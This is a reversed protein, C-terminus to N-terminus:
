PRVPRVLRSLADFLDALAEATPAPGAGGGVGAGPVVSAGDAGGAGVAEASGGATDGADRADTIGLLPHEEFRVACDLGPTQRRTPGFATLVADQFARNTGGRALLPVAIRSFDGRGGSEWAPEDARSAAFAVWKMAERGGDLAMRAIGRGRAGARALRYRAMVDPGLVVRRARTDPPLAERGVAMRSNSFSYCNDMFLTLQVGDPLRDLIARIDDDIILRGDEFDVPCIAQDKGSVEDGSIDEVTCGHGSYQVALVDGPRADSVLRELSRLIAVQTAAEDHLTAVGFGLTELAAQWDRADAVCGSLANPAPYRDIGICLARRSGAGTERGHGAQGEGRPAWTVVAGGPEIDRPRDPFQRPLDALNKLGLIGCAVSGMTQPDDDFGGHSISRSLSSGSSGTSPSWIAEGTKSATGNLGLRDRLAANQLISTQLGLIPTDREPELAKSILYLLSKRYVQVVTDKREAADTMTFIRLRKVLKPIKPEVLRVHDAVTIAPALLSLSELQVDKLTALRDVLRAHFISGASHGVAHLAVRDKHAAAFDGLRAIFRTGAADTEFAERAAEKMGRWIRAGGLNRVAMEVLGDSFDDIGRALDRALGRDAGLLRTIEEFLGTEWIFHIPFCGNAIWWPVQGAAIRLGAEENVLGGHAYLVIPLKKTGALANLADPLFRDFIRDVDEPETRYRGGSSLKGGWLDIVHPRLLTLTPADFAPTAAARADADLEGCPCAAESLEAESLEALPAALWRELPADLPGARRQATRGGRAGRVDNIVRAYEVSSGPCTKPSGLQNHFRLSDLGLGFAEQVIAIVEIATKYQAGDLTERGLDFNGVMEFMFPGSSRSGNHGVASAPPMDWPRGTWISGDPAITIHQAIDSFHRVNVHDRWMSTITDEGRWDSRRPRWTHHMHVADARRHGNQRWTAVMGAFDSLDVKHFPPPM